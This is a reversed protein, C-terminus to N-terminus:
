LNGVFFDKVVGMFERLLNNPESGLPTGAALGEVNRYGQKKAISVARFVHFNNTVIVVSDEESDLLRASFVLNQYTSESSDEVLIREEEIGAQMLYERMGVAEPISENGGQGGTVIARTGPNQELYGIAKDLRRRLVESPGTDKWQAGLIILFDAGPPAQANYQSFIRAEVAGFLFVGICFLACFIGKIWVPIAKMARGSRLIMALALCCAGIAGWILFFYTGFGTVGVGICYIVCLLGIIGFIGALVPHGGPTYGRKEIQITRRSKEFPILKEDRRKMDNDREPIGLGCRRACASDIPSDSTAIIACGQDVM